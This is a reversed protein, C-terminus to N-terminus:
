DIPIKDLAKDIVIFLEDFQGIIQKCQANLCNKQIDKKLIKYNESDLWIARQKKRICIPDSASLRNEKGSMVNFSYCDQSAPLTISAQWDSAQYTSCSVISLLLLLAALQLLLRM